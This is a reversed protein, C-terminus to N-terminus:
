LYYFLKPAAVQDLDALSETTLFEPLVKNQAADIFGLKAIEKQGHSTKSLDIDLFDVANEILFFLEMQEQGHWMFQQIYVLRGVKATIGTEELIERELAPVLAEGPDVGGGPVSWFDVAPKGDYAGLQFCLLKGEHVIIGRVALRRNM